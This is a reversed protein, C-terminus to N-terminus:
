ITSDVKGETHLDYGYSVGDAVYDLQLDSTDLGDSKRRYRPGDVQLNTTVLFVVVFTCIFTVGMVLLFQRNIDSISM